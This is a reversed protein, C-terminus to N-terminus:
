TCLSLLLDSSSIVPKVITGKSLRSALPQIEKCHHHHHHQQMLYPSHMLRTSALQIGYESISSELKQPRERNKNVIRGRKEEEIQIRQKIAQCKYRVIVADLACLGRNQLSINSFIM